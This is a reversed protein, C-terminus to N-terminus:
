RAPPDDPQAALWRAYDKPFAAAFRPKHFAVETELGLLQASALLKEIVRPEPSFHLLETALAHMSVANDPTVEAVSLAAFKVQRQYLWSQQAKALTDDRYAPARQDPPLYVQSIRRYDWAAYAVLALSVVALVTPLHRAAAPAPRAAPDDRWLLGLCLGLALQFPGYWLPYELLSHVGIVALVMWAARRAADTERWPRARLIWVLVGGCVLVAAPIGLEVALHLPLNHANDLIDCFRPGDYLTIYHAYDLEGWGWGLWPKQAILHLVNRWLTLRSACLTDGERLRSFMGHTAPDLGALWPLVLTAIAYCALMAGLWAFTRGDRRWVLAVVSLVLLQMLGTRSSSAANAIVLLAMAIALWVRQGHVRRHPALVWVALLVALAISTLSAFQNRQRLNAFAEGMPASNIWPAFLGALDFYQLLAFASSVLGAAIWPVLMCWRLWPLGGPATSLPCQRAFATALGILGFAGALAFAEYPQLTAARPFM